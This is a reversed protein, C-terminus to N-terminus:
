INRSWGNIYCLSLRTEYEDIEAQRGEEEMEDIEKAINIRNSLQQALYNEVNPSENMNYHYVIVTFSNDYMDYDDIYVFGGNFKVEKTFNCIAFDGLSNYFIKELAKLISDLQKM